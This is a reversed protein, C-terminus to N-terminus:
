VNNKTIVLWRAPIDSYEKSIEFGLAEGLALMRKNDINLGIWFSPNTFNRKYVDMVFSTFEKMLGKGRFPMYSLIAITHWGTELTKTQEQDDFRISKQGLTKPGFWVIAALTDTRTHVLIFPVRNKKYWEEYSGVGFRKRDGTNKQLDIDYPDLSRDKLQDVYKKELGVFLSFEEGDKSFAEAIYVSTFIPVPILFKHAINKPIIKM